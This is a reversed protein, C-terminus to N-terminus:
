RICKRAWDYGVRISTLGSKEECYFWKVVGHIFGFAMKYNDLGHLSVGTPDVVELDDHYIHWQPNKTLLDPYDSKMVDVARGLNLEFEKQSDVIMSLTTSSVAHDADSRTTATSASSRSRPTRRTFESQMEGAAPAARLLTRAAVRRRVRTSFARGVRGSSRTNGGGPAFATPPSSYAASALLALPAITKLQM